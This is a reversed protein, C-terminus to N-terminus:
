GFPHPLTNIFESQVSEFPVQALVRRGDGALNDDRAVLGAVPSWKRAWSAAHCCQMEQFSRYKATGVELALPVRAVAIGFTGM